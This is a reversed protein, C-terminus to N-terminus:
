GQFYFILTYSSLVFFKTGRREENQLATFNQKVYIENFCRM